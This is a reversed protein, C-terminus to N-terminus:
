LLYKYGTVFFYYASKRNNKITTARQSYQNANKSYHFTPIDQFLAEGIVSDDIGHVDADLLRLYLPFKKLDSTPVKLNKGLRMRQDVKLREKANKIQPEIPLSLDFLCIEEDETPIIGGDIPINQGDYKAVELSHNFKGIRGLAQLSATNQFDYSPNLLYYALGWKTLIRYLEVHFMISEPDLQTEMISPFINFGLAQRYRGLVGKSACLESIQLYDMQYFLNRRLFEWAFDQKTAQNTSPYEDEYRWDPLWSPAKHDSPWFDQPNM